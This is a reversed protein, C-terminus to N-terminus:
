LVVLTVGRNGRNLDEHQRLFSFRRLINRGVGSRTSFEEGFLLDNIKGKYKLYQLQARVEERIVGGQGTSGYGHILTLVRCGAQQAQALERELHALAQDVKPMGLKLNIRKHPISHDPLLSLTLEADCFPCRRRDSAVRNGCVGCCVKM